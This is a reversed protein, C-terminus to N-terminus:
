REESPGEEDKARDRELRRFNMWMDVLGIGSIFWAISELVLALVAGALRGPAKWDRGDAFATLVAFGQVALLTRAVVLLNMGIRDVIGAYPISFRGLAWLVLGVVLPWVIHISLDVHAFGGLRGAIGDRRAVWRIAILAVIAMIVGQVVHLAPWIAVATSAGTRLAEVVADSAAPDVQSFSAVVQDTNRTLISDVTSGTMWAGFLANAIGAVSLVAALRAGVGTMSETRLAYMSVYTGISAVAVFVATGPAVLAAYVIGGLLASIAGARNGSDLSLALGGALLAIGFLPFTSLLATGIAVAVLPWWRIAVGDGPSTM